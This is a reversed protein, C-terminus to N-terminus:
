ASASSKQLKVSKVIKNKDDLMKVIYMGYKLDTVDYANTPLSNFIKVEKGFMNYIIVKKINLSNNIQFYDTTPNPFVKIDETLSESNSYNVTPINQAQLGFNVVSLMIVFAFLILRNMGFCKIPCIYLM